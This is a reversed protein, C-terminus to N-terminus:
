RARATRSQRWRALPPGVLSGLAILGGWLAFLSGMFRDQRFHFEPRDFYDDTYQAKVVGSPDIIQLADIGTFGPLVWITVRTGSPIQTPLAPQFDGAHFQYTTTRGALKLDSNAYSYYALTSTIPQFLAQHATLAIFAGCGGVFLGIVLWLWRSSGARYVMRNLAWRRGEPFSLPQAEGAFPLLGGSM